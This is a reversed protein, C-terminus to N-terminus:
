IYPFGFTPITFLLAILALSLAFGSGYGYPAYGFASVTGQNKNSLQKKAKKFNTSITGTGRAQSSLILQGESIESITGYYYSGDYLVACVTRGIYPNIKEECIPYIAEM